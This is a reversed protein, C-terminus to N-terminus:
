IKHCITDEKELELTLHRSGVYIGKGIDAIVNIDKFSQMQLLEPYETGM